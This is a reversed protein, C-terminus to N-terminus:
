GRTWRRGTPPALRICAARTSTVRSTKVIFTTHGAACAALTFYYFTRRNGFDIFPFEGQTGVTSM